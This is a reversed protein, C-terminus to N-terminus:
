SWCASNDDEAKHARCEDCYIPQGVGGARRLAWSRSTWCRDGCCECDVYVERDRHFNIEARHYNM